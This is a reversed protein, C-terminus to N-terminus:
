SAAKTSRLSKSARALLELGTEDGEQDLESLGFKVALRIGDRALHEREFLVQLRDCICRAEAISTQPILLAFSDKDFRGLTDCSRIKSSFSASLLSLIREKQWDDLGPNTVKPDFEMLCLSLKLGYRQARLIEGDTIKLFTERNYLGTYDDLAKIESLCETVKELRDCIITFLNHFFRHATPPYLWQLRQIMKWNIQLLEVPETAIVTASRPASRLLGMEGLLDGAKLRNILRQSRFELRSKEDAFPEIVDMAGSVVTYMSDSPDGKHFLVEGSDLAKLSGAMIIYHVQTRSLGKFLPIGYRPEKGLKLRVLDWLTVLEVHQMLSPLLILDGALASLMTVTMMIGFVATPKFSSFLLISFGVCITLTTFIIPRGVQKLTDRFARRDDLDKKFERNYRFLYHITDDVALGIAISAILSTAMSLEIGLWGMIGFNIIIPFLNPVIAILGVKSSLFLLFMIGFILVMTISLSEIQGRTLHHSSASITIGFGTVDWELDNSFNQKVFELIKDRTQLFDRSSSIHTLLVINAKSFNASMFRDLMDQGLLTTYNNILMRVEFAEEPLTYYKSEFRNLVYNVLMMYDAFSITKDIGPLKELYKQLRLIDAVNKPDEFYDAEKGAMVVNIPFSGSLDQYIDHFNRKVATDEKFYGVPNTEVRIRMIGLLCFVVLMGIIPIVIKQHKLNLRIITDIFRDLIRTTGIDWRKRKGPLPILALAAPLLTHVIVLISFMGFCTFVAFERITPIRNVLLSGLGIATTLVAIFTPFAVTSYTALTADVPSDADQLCSLYESVIHLCYATGVAILFVPVIMTIMSLPIGLYAMLGFTWVLALGVCTIPILIYQIRLFLCFLIVAILLFTIPPLRFFDKETFEVLAQSVLPMGVQYISLDKTAGAILAEVKQIVKQPDAKTELVLTLATTKRDDSLLNKRFLDVRTVVTYFKELSWKGSVDVAQKIGPLSIVRRVGPIAAADHAFQTIKQFTVPAFINESKVVIRIIEDSGFLKKFNEYRATEPLDEIQLDYVSTQFSLHSIQWAFFLTVVMITLIVVLPRRVIRELIERPSLDISVTKPM